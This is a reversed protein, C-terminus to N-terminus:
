GARLMKVPLLLAKPWKWLLQLTSLLLLAAKQFLQAFGGPPPPLPFILPLPAPPPAVVLAPVAAVLFYHCALSGGRLVFSGQLSCHPLCLCSGLTLVAFVLQHGLRVSDQAAALGTHTVTRWKPCLQRDQLISFLRLAPLVGPSMLSPLVLWCPKACLEWEQCPLWHSPLSPSLAGRTM